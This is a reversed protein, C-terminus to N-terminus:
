LGYAFRSNGLGGRHIGKLCTLPVRPERVTQLRPDTSPVAFTVGKQGPAKNKARAKLSTQEMSHLLEPPVFQGLTPRSTGTGATTHHGQTTTHSARASSANAEQPVDAKLHPSNIPARKNRAKREPGLGPTWGKSPTKGGARTSNKTTRQQPM